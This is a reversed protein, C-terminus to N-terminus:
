RETIRVPIRRTGFDGCDNGFRGPVSAGCEACRGRTDICYRTVTYGERVIIAAGCSPCSTTAGEVDAVNGTYVFNLGSEQGIRRARSLTAKPTAAVDRLKHDPHFATFHLPVDPGLETSVWECLERIRTDSDNLGPILLTTIEVWVSTSHVLYTLTDLVTSLRGGTVKRYFDESFGKLDVNAADIVDFLAARARPSVYGATVAVTRLGRERCAVATDIAYEAFIVPDNYTFAVSTCQWEAATRAIDAPSAADSLAEVRSSTSIEWNQCFRCGLNCGATGFSLVPTGPFFHSLPKKEIPDIYFGTSRGYATLVLGDDDGGGEPRGRVFCFGRQGERLRCERPCVDCQVRGDDLRHWFRAPVGEVRAM